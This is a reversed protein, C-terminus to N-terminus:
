STLTSETAATFGHIYRFPFFKNAAFDLQNKLQFVASRVCFYARKVYPLIVIGNRDNLDIISNQPFFNLGPNLLNFGPKLSFCDPSKVTIM